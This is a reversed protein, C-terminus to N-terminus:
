FIIDILAQISGDVAKKIIAQRDGILNMQITKRDLNKGGMAIIVTGVPTDATGGTPGAVGTISIAVDCGLLKLAGELMALAVPNSVAGYQDLTKQSVGLVKAKVPNTYSVISGVFANSAGPIQTIRASFAGGTCSEAAGFTINRSNCLHILNEEIKM